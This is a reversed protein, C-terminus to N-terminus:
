LCVCVLAEDDAFNGARGLLWELVAQKSYLRGQLSRCLPNHIVNSSTGCPPASHAPPVPLHPSPPPPAPFLLVFCPSTGCLM